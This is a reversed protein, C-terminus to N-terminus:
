GISRAITHKADEYDRRVQIAPSYPSSPNYFQDIFYPQMAGLVRADLPTAAAHDLYILETNM